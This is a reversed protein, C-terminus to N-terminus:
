MFLSVKVQSCYQLDYSGGLVVTDEKLENIYYVTSVLIGFM